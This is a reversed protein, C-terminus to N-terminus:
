ARGRRLMGRARDSGLLRGARGLRRIDRLRRHRARRRSDGCDRIGSGGGQNFDIRDRGLGESDRSGMRVLNRRVRSNGFLRGVGDVRLLRRRRNV